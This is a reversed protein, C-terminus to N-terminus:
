WSFMEKLSKKPLKFDALGIHKVIERIQKKYDSIFPEQFYPIYPGDQLHTYDYQIRYCLRDKIGGLRRHQTISNDFLCLDNDNQYWHDYVYEESFLEKELRSIFHDSEKKSMGEISAATNPSYHLGTIGGPSRIVLPIRTGDVPCMNRYMVFDQEERLGPNIKGPTFNHIVVM